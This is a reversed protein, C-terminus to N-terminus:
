NSYGNFVFWLRRTSREDARPTSPKETLLRCSNTSIATPSTSGITKADPTIEEFVVEDLNAIRLYSAKDVPLNPTRAVAYFHRSVM